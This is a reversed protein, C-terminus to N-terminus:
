GIVTLLTFIPSFLTADECSPEYERITCVVFSEDPLATLGSLRATYTSPSCTPVVASKSPVASEDPMIFLSVVIPYSVRLTFTAPLSGDDTLSVCASSAEPM